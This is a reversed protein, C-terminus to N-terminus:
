SVFSFRSFLCVNVKEKKGKKEKGKEEKERTRRKEGKGEKEEGEKKRQLDKGKKNKSIKLGVGNVTRRWTSGGSGGQWVGRNTSSLTPLPYGSGM